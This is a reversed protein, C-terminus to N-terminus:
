WQNESQILGAGAADGDQAEVVPTVPKSGQAVSPVISPV